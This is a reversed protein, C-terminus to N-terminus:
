IGGGRLFIMLFGNCYLSIHACVKELFAKFTAVEYCKEFMCILTLHSSSRGVKQWIDQTHTHIYFRVYQNRQTRNKKPVAFASPDKQTGKQTNKYANSRSSKQSAYRIIQTQFCFPIQVM